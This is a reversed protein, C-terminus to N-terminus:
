CSSFVVEERQERACRLWSPQDPPLCHPVTLIAQPHARGGLVQSVETDGSKGSYTVESAFPLIHM